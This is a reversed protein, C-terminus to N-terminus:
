DIELEIDGKKIIMTGGGLIDKINKLHTAEQKTIQIDCIKSDGVKVGTNTEIYKETPKQTIKKDINKAINTLQELVLQKNDKCTKKGLRMTKLSPLKWLKGTFKCYTDCENGFVVCPTKYTTEGITKIDNLVVRYEKKNDELLKELYKQIGQILVLDQQNLGWTVIHINNM